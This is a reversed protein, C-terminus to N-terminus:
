LRGLLHCPERPKHTVGCFQMNHWPSPPTDARTKEVLKVSLLEKEGSEQSQEDNMKSDM